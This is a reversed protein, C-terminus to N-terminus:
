RAVSGVELRRPVLCGSPYGSRGHDIYRDYPVGSNGDYIM